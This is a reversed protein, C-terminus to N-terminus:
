ELLIQQDPRCPEKGNITIGGDDGVEAGPLQKVLAELTAGEATRYADANYMTTDEVQQVKAVTARVIAAQLVYTDSYMVLDGLKLTDPTTKLSDVKQEPLELDHYISRYGIYSLRLRYKGAKAYKLLFTGDEDTNTGTLMDDNSTGVLRVTAYDLGIQEERDIVRGTLVYGQAAATIGALLLCIILSLRRQM